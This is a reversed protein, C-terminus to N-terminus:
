EGTRVKQIKVGNYIINTTMGVDTLGRVTLNRDTSNQAKKYSYMMSM